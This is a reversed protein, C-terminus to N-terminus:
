PNNRHLHRNLFAVLTSVSIDHLVSGSADVFLTHFPLPKGNFRKQLLGALRVVALSSLGLDAGLLASPLIPAPSTGPPKGLVQRIASTVDHWIAEPTGISPKQQIWSM